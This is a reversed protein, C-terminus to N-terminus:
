NLSKTALKREPLQLSESEGEEQQAPVEVTADQGAGQLALM